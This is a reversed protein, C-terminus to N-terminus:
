IHERLIRSWAHGWKFYLYALTFSIFPLASFGLLGYLVLSSTIDTSLQEDANPPFDKMLFSNREDIACKLTMLPIMLILHELFLLLNYAALIKKSRNWCKNISIGTPKGCRHILEWDYHLPPCLLTCLDNLISNVFHVKPRPIGKFYMKKLLQSLLVHMLLALLCLVPLLFQPFSKLNDELKYKSEWIDEFSTEYGIPNIDFVPTIPVDEKYLAVTSILGSKYHFLTNLLGLNPTFFFLFAAVRALIGVMYFACLILKGGMPLFGNKKMGLMTLQGRVLSLFSALASAYFILENEPVFNKSLYLSVTSTRTKKILILLIILVLQPFHELINENGRLQSRLKKLNVMYTLDKQHEEKNSYNAVFNQLKCDIRFQQYSIVVPVIFIFLAGFLRQVRSWGKFNLVVIINAIEVLIISATTISFLIIPLWDPLFSYLRHALIVDKFFDLYYALVIILYSIAKLSILFFKRKMLVKVATSQVLFKKRRFFWRNDVNNFFISTARCTGILKYFFLNTAYEDGANYDLELKYVRRCYNQLKHIGSLEEEEISAIVSSGYCKQLRLKAYPLELSDMSIVQISEKREDIMRLSTRYHETIDQLASYVDIFREGLRFFLGLFFVTAIGCLLYAWWEFFEECDAEDGYDKCLDDRGDCPIACIHLGTYRHKCSFTNAFKESELRIPHGDGSKLPCISCYRQDEDSGDNCNFFGDCVLNKPICTMNDKCRFYEPKYCKSDRAPCVLDSGDPCYALDKCGPKSHQPVGSGTIRLTLRGSSGWSSLPFYSNFGPFNGRCTYIVNGDDDRWPRFLNGETDHEIKTKWFTYNQCFTIHDPHSYYPHQPNMNSCLDIFNFCKKGILTSDKDKDCSAKSDNSLCPSLPHFHSQSGCFNNRSTLQFDSRELFPQRRFEKLFVPTEPKEYLPQFTDNCGTEDSRDICHYYSDCISEYYIIQSPRHGRCFITNGVKTTLVPDVRVGRLGNWAPDECLKRYAGIGSTSNRGNITKARVNALQPLSSFACIYFLYADDVEVDLDVHFIDKLVGYKLADYSLPKENQLKSAIRCGSGCARKSGGVHVGPALQM